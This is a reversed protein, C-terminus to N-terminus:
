SLEQPSLFDGSPRNKFEAHLPEGTTIDQSFFDKESILIAQDLILDFYPRHNNKLHLYHRLDLTKNQGTKWEHLRWLWSRKKLPLSLYELPQNLPKLSSSTIRTSTKSTVSKEGTIALCSKVCQYNQRSFLNEVLCLSTEDIVLHFKLNEKNKELLFQHLSELRQEKAKWPLDLHFVEYGHEVLFCPLDGWYGKFYFLSKKGGLFLLPYRSILCNPRLAIPPKRRVRNQNDLILFAIITLSILFFIIGM